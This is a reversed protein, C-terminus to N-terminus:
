EVELLLRVRALLSDPTYPKPLLNVSEILMGNKVLSTESYGTVYLIKLEPVLKSVKQALEEGTMKPMVLDTLLLDPKLSQEEILKLAEPGSKAEVVQYGSQRLVRTTLKRVLEEDEVLLITGHQPSLVPNVLSNPSTTPDVEAQIPLRPLYIKFTTGIGVESNVWINGGSQKVIGYVTSLGLGTGKGVEKTTFFPEFIREQIEPPIGQGNDSVSLLVYSGVEAGLYHAKAYDDLEVNSTEIVVNGGDPMADQANVVLNMIVQELQGPDARILGLEPEFKTILEVDAGILRELLRVLNSVLDNLQIQKPQLITKRSFALLQATLKAARDAAKIVEGIDRATREDATTRMQILRSYGTIATLLNNFDHAIGGALRGVAEMKQSQRLQEEALKLQAQANKTETINLSIAVTALQGQYELVSVSTYVWAERGDKNLMRHEYRSPVDEGRLRALAREVFIEREAPVVMLAPSMTTLEEVSFGTLEAAAQNVYLFREPIGILLAAPMTDAIIRFKAESDLLAKTALKLDTLDRTIALLSEVQGDRGFEPVVQSQFFKKGSSSRYSFNLLVPEGTAFIQGAIKEWESLGPEPWGIDRMTRGLFYEPPQGMIQWVAPNVYIHRLQHDYRHIIDPSNEVLTKFEQERQRLAEEVKKQRTIDQHITVFCTQGDMEFTEGSSLGVIIAGDPLLTQTELNHVSGNEQILRLFREHQEQKSWGMEVTTKGVIEELTVGRERLMTQNATIFRGEKLDRIFMELPSANFIKAFRDDSLRRAEEVQKLETLDTFATVVRERGDLEIVEASVLGIMDGGDKFNRLRLELNKFSGEQRLLGLMQRLEEESSWGLEVATKGVVEAPKLGLNTIVADNIEIIMGTELDNVSITIPALNFMKYFREQDNRLTVETLKRETVDLLALGVGIIQGDGQRVPYYNLLYHNPLGWIEGNVEINQVPQGSELVHRLMTESFAATQPILNLISKGNFDEVKGAMQKVMTQNIHECELRINAFALGIPVSEMLSNLKSFAEEKQHAALQAEQYLRSNDLAQAIRQAFEQALQRITPTFERGSRNTNVLRLAGLVKGRVILPILLSTKIDQSLLLDLTEKDQAMFHYQNLDFVPDYTAQGSQITKILPSDPSLSVPMRRDIEKLIEELDPYYHVRTVRNISSDKNLYYVTVSDALEPIALNTLNELITDYDLSSALLNSAKSLFSLEANSSSLDKNIRQNNQWVKILVLFLGFILTLSGLWLMRDETYSLTRGPNLATLVAHATVLIVSTVAWGFGGVLAACVVGTVYLAGASEFRGFFYAIVELLFLILPTVLLGGVKVWGGQIDKFKFM